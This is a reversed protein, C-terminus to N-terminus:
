CKFAQPYLERAKKNISLFIKFSSFTFLIGLTGLVCFALTSLHEYHNLFTFEYVCVILSVHIGSRYMLLKKSSRLKLFVVIALVISALFYSGIFVAYLNYVTEYRTSQWLIIGIVITLLLNHFKFCGILEKWWLKHASRQLHNEKEQVIKSFGFLGFDKYVKSLAAEFNLSSDKELEEEIRTALHDVLEIQLDYWRVMKKETFQYLEQIHEETLQM